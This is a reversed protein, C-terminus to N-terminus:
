IGGVTQARTQEDKKGEEGGKREKMQKVISKNTTIKAIKKATKNAIINSSQKVGKM